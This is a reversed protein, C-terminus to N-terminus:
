DSDVRVARKAVVKTRAPIRKNDCMSHVSPSIPALWGCWTFRTQNTRASDGVVVVIVTQTRTM